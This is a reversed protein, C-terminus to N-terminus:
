SAVRSQHAKALALIAPKFLAWEDKRGGFAEIDRGKFKAWEASLHVQCGIKIHLDTIMVDYTGGIFFVPSISCVQDRGLDAGNLNARSLYARSLYAGSLYARSLYAGSLDAGSLYAGSLNAGSLNAGRLDAGSLNARSLNAGSLDAGSLNAGRLDAGSLNAREGGTGASWLKHNALIAPLNFKTDTM